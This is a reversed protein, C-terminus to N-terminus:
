VAEGAEADEGSWYDALIVSMGGFDYPKGTAPDIQIEYRNNYKNIYHILQPAATTINTQKLRSIFKKDYNKKSLIKDIEYKNCDLLGSLISCTNISITYDKDDIIDCIDQSLNTFYVTSNGFTKESVAVKTQDSNRILSFDINYFCSLASHYKQTGNEFYITGPSPTNSILKQPWQTLDDTENYKIRKLGKMVIDYMKKM